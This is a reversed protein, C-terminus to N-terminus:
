DLISFNKTIGFILKNQSQNATRQDDESFVYSVSYDFLDTGQYSLTSGYGLEVYGGDAFVRVIPDSEWETYGVEGFFGKYEAGVALFQYDISGGDEAARDLAGYSYNLSIWKWGAGLTAELYDPSVNDTYTMLLVGASYNFDEAIEGAIGTYFDIEMGSTSDVEGPAADIDIYEVQSAWTGLYFLGATMDLGGQAVAKGNSQDAGRWIYDTVFGANGTVEIAIAQASVAGLLVAALIQKKV